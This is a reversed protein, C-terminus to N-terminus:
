LWDQSPMAIVRFTQSFLEVGFRGIDTGQEPLVQGLECGRIANVFAPQRAAKSFFKGFHYHSSM